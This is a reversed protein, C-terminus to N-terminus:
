GKAPGGAVRQYGAACSRCVGPDYLGDGLVMPREGGGNGVTRHDGQYVPKNQAGGPEQAASPSTSSDPSGLKGLAQTVAKGLYVRIDFVQVGWARMLDISDALQPGTTWMMLCCHKAAYDAVNIAKLEDLSLTGYHREAGGRNRSKDNYRWPPDTLILEFKIQDTNAEVKGGQRDQTGLSSPATSLELLM